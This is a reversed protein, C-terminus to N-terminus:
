EYYVTLFGCSRNSLESLNLRHAPFDIIGDVKINIDKKSEEIEGQDVLHQVILKVISRGDIQTCRNSVSNIDSM